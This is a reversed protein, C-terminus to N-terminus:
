TTSVLFFPLASPLQTALTYAFTFAHWGNLGTGTFQGDLAGGFITFVGNTDFAFTGVQWVSNVLVNCTNVVGASPWWSRPLPDTTIISSTGSGSAWAASLSIQAWGNIVETVALSASVAVGGYPGRATLTFPASHYASIATLPAQFV